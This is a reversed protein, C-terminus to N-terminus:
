RVPLFVYCPHQTPSLLLTARQLMNRLRRLLFVAFRGDLLAFAFLRHAIKDLEAVVLKRNALHVPFSSRGANVAPGHAEIKLMHAARKIREDDIAPNEGSMQCAVVATSFDNTSRM